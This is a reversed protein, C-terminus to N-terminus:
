KDYICALKNLDETTSGTPMRGDIGMLIEEDTPPRGRMLFDSMAIADYGSRPHHLGLLHYLEHIIIHRASSNKLKVRRMWTYATGAVPHKETFCCEVTISQPMAVGVAMALTRVKGAVIINYGLAQQILGAEEAVADLLENPNSFSGSVDVVFPVNEWLAPVSTNHLGNETTFAIAQEYQEGCNESGIAPGSRRGEPTLDPLSSLNTLTGTDADEMLNMVIIPQSAEVDHMSQAHLEITWRGERGVPQTDFEELETATIIRVEHPALINDQDFWPEGKDSVGYLYLRVSHADPNIVRLRNQHTADSFNFLPVRYYTGYHERYIPVVEHAATIFGDETSIYSAVSLPGSPLTIFLQWDGIGEGIGIIGKETNGDELDESTFEFGWDAPRDIATEIPDYYKGQDDIAEITLSMAPTGFGGPVYIRVISHLTEHNASLFYPIYHRESDADAVSVVVILTLILATAISRSAHCQM